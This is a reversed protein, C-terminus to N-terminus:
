ANAKEKPIWLSSPPIEKNVEQYLSLKLKKDQEADSEEKPALDKLREQASEWKEIDTQSLNHQLKVTRALKELDFTLAQFSSTLAQYQEVRRAPQFIPKAVAIVATLGGLMAWIDEGWTWSWFKWAGISSSTGIAIAIDTAFCIRRFRVLRASYYKLSLVADRYDNYLLVLRRRLLQLDVVAPADQGTTM